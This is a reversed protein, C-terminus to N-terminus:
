HAFLVNCARNHLFYRTFGGFLTERLRSHSWAGMVVLDARADQYFAALQRAPQDEAALALPTAAVGHARSLYAACDQVSPQLPPSGDEELALVHVQRVQRLLPLAATVAHRAEPTPKWACVVTMQSLEAVSPAHAVLVLPAGAHLLVQQVARDFLPPAFGAACLVWDHLFGLAALKGEVGELLDDAGAWQLATTGPLARFDAEAQAACRRSHELYQATLYAHAPEFGSVELLARYEARQASPLVQMVDALYRCAVPLSLGRALMAGFQLVPAERAEGSYLIVGNGQM